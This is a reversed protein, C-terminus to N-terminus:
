RTRGLVMDVGGIAVHLKNISYLMGLVPSRGTTAIDDAGGVFLHHMNHYLVREM